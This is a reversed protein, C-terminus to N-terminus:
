CLVRIFSYYRFFLHMHNCKKPKFYLENTLLTYFGQINGKVITEERYKSVTKIKM